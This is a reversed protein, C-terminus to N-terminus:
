SSHNTQLAEWRHLCHMRSCGAVLGWSLHLVLKDVRWNPFRLTSIRYTQLSPQYVDRSSLTLSLSPRPALFLSNLLLLLVPPYSLSPSLFLSVPYPRKLRETDWSAEPTILRTCGWMDVYTRMMDIWRVTAPNNEEDVQRGKHWPDLSLAAFVKSIETREETSIYIKYM